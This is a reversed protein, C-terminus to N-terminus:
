QIVIKGIRYESKLNGAYIFIEGTKIQKSYSPLSYVKFDNTNYLESNKIEGKNNMVSMILTSKKLSTMPNHIGGNILSANEKDDNYIFVLSNGYKLSAYSLFYREDSQGVQMKLVNSNWEFQLDKNFRFVSIWDRHHVTRPKIGPILANTGPPLDTSITKKTTIDDEFYVFSTRQEIILNISEDNLLVIERVSNNYVEYDHIYVGRLQNKQGEIYSQSYESFTIPKLTKSVPDIATIFVGKSRDFSPGGYRNSHNDESYLGACVIKGANIVKIKINVVFKNGVELKSIIIEGTKQYYSQLAYSYVPVDREKTEEDFYKLLQYFNGDNDISFNLSYVKKGKEESIFDKKWISNFNDDFLSVAYKVPGNSKELISHRILFHSSDESFTFYFDADKENSLDTIRDLEKYNKNLNGNQADIDFLVATKINEKKNYATAYLYIKGSLVFLRALYFEKNKTLESEPIVIKNTYNLKMTKLDNSSLFLEDKGAYHNDYRYSIISNETEGLIYGFDSKSKDIIEESWEVKGVQSFGSLCISLFVLLLLLNKKM